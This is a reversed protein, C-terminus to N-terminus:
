LYGGRGGGDPAACAFVSELFLLGLLTTKLVFKLLTM